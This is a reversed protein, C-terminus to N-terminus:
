KLFGERQKFRRLLLLADGNHQLMERREARRRSLGLPAACQGM